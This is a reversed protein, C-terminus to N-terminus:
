PAPLAFPAPSDISVGAPGEGPLGPLRAIGYISLSSIVLLLLIGVPSLPSVLVAFSVIVATLGLLKAKSSRSLAGHEKWESLISGFFISESLLQNLRRSSRALFYSTALLFPVTPIGPIVLGVMTMTFAGGALALYMVRKPGTFVEVVTDRAPWESHQTSAPQKGGKALLDEFSREAQDLFGNLGRNKKRFDITLGQSRPLTQCQEVEDFRSIAEALQSLRHEDDQPSRHSLQIRGPEAEHTEWLSVDGSLPYATLTLWDATHRGPTHATNSSGAVAERVCDAFADAM